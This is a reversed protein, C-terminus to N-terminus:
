RWTKMTVPQLGPLEVQKSNLEKQGNSVSRNLLGHFCYSVLGLCNERLLRGNAKEHYDGAYHKRQPSYFAHRALHRHMEYICIRGTIQNVDSKTTKILKLAPYATTNSVAHRPPTRRDAIGALLLVPCAHGGLIDTIAAAVSVRDAPGGMHTVAGTQNM